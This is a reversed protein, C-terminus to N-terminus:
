ILINFEIDLFVLLISGFVRRYFGATFAFKGCRGFSFVRQQLLLNKNM